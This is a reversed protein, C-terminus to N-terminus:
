RAAGIKASAAAVKVSGELSDGCASLSILVHATHAGKLSSNNSLQVTLLHSLILANANLVYKYM